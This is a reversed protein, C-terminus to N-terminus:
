RVIYAGNLIVDRGGCASWDAAQGNIGGAGQVPRGAWEAQTQHYRGSQVRGDGGGVAKWAVAQIGM